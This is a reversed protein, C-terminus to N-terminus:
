GPDGRAMLPLRLCFTSGQGLVSHVWLTGGMAELDRRLTALQPVKSLGPAAWAGEPPSTFFALQQDASWGPGRDQVSVEAQQGLRRVRVTLPRASAQAVVVALLARVSQELLLKNTAVTMPAAELQLTVPMGQAQLAQLLPELLATVCTVVSFAEVPPCPDCSMEARRECADHQKKESGDHLILAYGRLANYDDLVATMSGQGWFREGGKKVYWRAMTCSQGHAAARLERDCVGAVGDEPAFIQRIPQGIIQAAPYGLLQRAGHNWCQVRGDPDLLMLAYDRVGDVLLRAREDSQRLSQEVEERARREQVLRQRSEARDIASVVTRWLSAPAVDAKVIYDMAGRRMAQVALSESGRGTVMIVPPVIEGNMNRLQDMLDFGDVDPLEFDLLMCDVHLTECIRLADSADEAELFSFQGKGLRLLYQRYVDREVPNDDVILLTRAGLLPEAEQSSPTSGM